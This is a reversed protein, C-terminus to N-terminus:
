RVVTVCAGELRMVPRLGRPDIDVGGNGGSGVQVVPAHWLLTTGELGLSLVRLHQVLSSSSPLLAQWLRVEKSHASCVPGALEWRWTDWVRVQGDGCGLALFRASLAVVATPTQKQLQSPLIHRHQGGLVDVLVVRHELLVALHWEEAAGDGDGDTPPGRLQPAVAAADVFALAETAGFKGQSAPPGPAPQKGDQQQSHRQTQQWAAAERVAWVVRRQRAAHALDSGSGDSSGVHDKEKLQQEQELAAIAAEVSAGSTLAQNSHVPDFPQISSPRIIVVARM